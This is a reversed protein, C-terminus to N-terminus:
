TASQFASQKANEIEAYFLGLTLCFVFLSVPAHFVYVSLSSVSQAVLSSFTIVVGSTKFSKVFVMVVSIICLIVITFGVYGLEYLAEVLDNHAHEYFHQIKNTDTRDLGWIKYQSMPSYAFFNSIGFGFMPNTIITQRQGEVSCDEIKGNVLQSVSLKWISLRENIETGTKHCFHWWPILLIAMAALGILTYKKGFTFYSYVTSGGLLGILASNCKTLFIPVISLPLLWTAWFANAVSYIGLQNKSGMFSVVDEKGQGIQVFIPDKGFYQVLSYAISLVAMITMAIYVWKLDKIKSSVVIVSAALCGILLCMMPRPAASTIFIYSFFLYSILLAIFKNTKWFMSAFCIGGILQLALLQPFWVCTGKISIISSIPILFISLIILYIM